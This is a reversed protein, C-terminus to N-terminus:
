EDPNEKWIDYLIVFLSDYACSWNQNDWELGIPSNPNLDLPLSSKNKKNIVLNDDIEDEDQKHKLEKSGKAPIFTTM